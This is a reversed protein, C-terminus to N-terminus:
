FPREYAGLDLPGGFDSQWPLDVVRANGELDFTWGFRNEAADLAPSGPRLHFDGAAEDVFQPDEDRVDHQPPFDSLNHVILDAAVVARPLMAGLVPRSPEWVISQALTLVGRTDFMVEDSEDGFGQGRIGAITSSVLSAKTAFPFHMASIADLNPAVLSNVIDLGMAHKCTDAADRLFCNDAFVSAGVHDAVVVSDLLVHTQMKEDDNSLMVAAGNKYIFGGAVSQNATLRNCAVDKACPVSGAPASVDRGPLMRLRAGNAVFLAGGGYEGLNREFVGDWIAVQTLRGTAHIGAGFSARNASVRLPWYAASTFMRVTTRPGAFLGGGRQNAINRVLIGEAHHGGDIDVSASRGDAGGSIYVGGGNGNDISSGNARNGFVVSKAGTLRLRAAEVWVGGGDIAENATITVGDGLTVLTNDEGSTGVIAVGGGVDARNSRITSTTVVFSGRGHILLGGGARGHHGDTLELRTVRMKVSGADEPGLLSLVPADIGGGALRTLGSPAGASCSAYGGTIEVDHRAVVIAQGNFTAAVIRIQDTGPSLEAADVAAQVSAHTCGAMPGVTYVAAVAQSGLTGAFLLSAIRIPTNM